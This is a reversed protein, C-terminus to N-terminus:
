KKMFVILELCTVISLCLAITRSYVIVYLYLGFIMLVTFGIDLRCLIILHLLASYSSTPYTNSRM